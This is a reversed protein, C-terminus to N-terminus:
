KQKSFLTGALMVSIPATESVAVGLVAVCRPWGSGHVVHCVAIPDPVTLPSNSPLQGCDAILCPKLPKDGETRQDNLLKVVGYGQLCGCAGHFLAPM